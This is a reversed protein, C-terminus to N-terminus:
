INLEINISTGMGPASEISLKGKLFSVRNRINQLGIGTATIQKGVDFGRGDDDVTILFTENERIFQVLINKSSGHKIANTLLEQVIRYIHIAKHMLLGRSGGSSQFEIKVGTNALHACLDQVAIELGNKLLSEPVMGRATRRLEDIAVGLQLEAEQVILRKDRSPDSLKMKIGSLTGGIGDHLDRAIRVRERDEGELLAQSVKLAQDRQAEALRNKSKKKNAKLLYSLFVMGMLFLAAGVGLVLNLLFQNRSTLAAERKENELTVIRKEKESAQYRTELEQIEVQM